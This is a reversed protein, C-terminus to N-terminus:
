PQISLRVGNTASFGNPIAPHTVFAQIFATASAAIPPMVVDIEAVGHGDTAGALVGLTGVIPFASSAHLVCGGGIPVAAEQSGVLVIVVGGGHATAIEMTVEGGGSADGHMLFSPAYAAGGTCGDGYTRVPGENEVLDLYQNVPLDFYTNIIGSPWFVTVEDLGTADGVGFHLFRSDQSHASTGGMIQRMMTLGSASVRVVAGIAARNSETAVLKFNVWNRTQGAIVTDNRFLQLPNGNDNVLLIDVDGDRDYDAVASGRAGVGIPSTVGAVGSVDTFTGDGDNQYLLNKGAPSTLGVFLDEYGDQDADFFNAPWSNDGAIGVVDATNDHFTGDGKGSYYPNGMPPADWTTNFIDTIYFDWDGDNDPDGVTIGMAARSDNGFGPSEPVADVFRGTGDNRWLFDRHEAVPSWACQAQAWVMDPWLDRDLHAGVSALNTRLDDSDAPGPLRVATTFDTFTGDGDNRFLRDWNSLEGYSGCAWHGVYLDIWGDRDFDLFVATIARWGDYNPPPTSSPFPTPPRDDVGHLAAVERFLPAGTPYQNGSDVWLNELLLNPPGDEPNPFQLSDLDLKENDTVIYIDQDGDNDIDAYVSAAMEHNPLPPLLDDRLQFTGGNNIYLHAGGSGKGNVCFLDPWDDNNVDIFAAGLGHNTKADYLENGVGATQAVDVFRIQARATDTWSSALILTTGTWLLVGVAAERASKVVTGVVLRRRLGLGKM